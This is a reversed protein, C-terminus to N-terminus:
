REISLDLVGDNVVIQVTDGEGVDGAIIARGVRTEIEHQVFRKLPRAGYVPDYAQEAIHEAAKADLTLAIQRDALRGRLSRRKLGLANALRPM